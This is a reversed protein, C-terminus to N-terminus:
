KASPHRHYYSSPQTVRSFDAEMADLSPNNFKQQHIGPFNHNGIDAGRFSVVAASMSQGMTFCSGSLHNNESSASLVM